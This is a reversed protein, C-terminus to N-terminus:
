SPSKPHTLDTEWNVGSPAQNSGSATDGKESDNSQERLSPMGRGVAPANRTSVDTHAAVSGSLMSIYSGDSSDSFSDDEDSPTGDELRTDGDARVGDAAGEKAAVRVKSEEWEIDGTSVHTRLDHLLWESARIREFKVTYTISRKAPLYIGVVSTGDMPRVAVIGLEAKASVTSTDRGVGRQPRHAAVVAGFPARFDRAYGIAKGTFLEYPSRVENRRIRRNLVKLADTLLLQHLYGATLQYGESNQISFYVSRATDKLSRIAVEVRPCKQGSAKLDLAVGRSSLYPGM